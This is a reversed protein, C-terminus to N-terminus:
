VHQCGSLLRANRGGHWPTCRSLSHGLSQYREITRGGDNWSWGMYAFLLPVAFMGFQTDAMQMFFQSRTDGAWGEPLAAPPTPAPTACALAGLLLAIPIWWSIRAPMARM